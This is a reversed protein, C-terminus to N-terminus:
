LAATSNLVAASDSDSDSDAVFMVPSPPLQQLPFNVPFLTASTFAVAVAAVNNFAVVFTCGREREIRMQMDIVLQCYSNAPFAAAAAAFMFPFVPFYRLEPIYILSIVAVVVM